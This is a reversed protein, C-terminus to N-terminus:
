NIVNNITNKNILQVETFLGVYNELLTFKKAVKKSYRYKNILFQNFKFRYGIKTLLCEFTNVITIKYLIQRIIKLEISIM